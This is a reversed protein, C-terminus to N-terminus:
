ANKRNLAARAAREMIMINAFLKDADPVKAADLAAKVGEYRM